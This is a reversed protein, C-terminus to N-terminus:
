HFLDLEMVDTVVSSSAPCEITVTAEYRFTDGAKKAKIAAMLYILFEFKGPYGSESPSATRRGQLM